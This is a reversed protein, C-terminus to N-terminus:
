RHGQRRPNAARRTRHKASRQRPAAGRQADEACRDVVAFPPSVLLTKKQLGFEEVVREVSRRSVPMGLQTLTQAVVEASALPDLFRQRIIQRVVEDTRRSRGKPGRKGCVLGTSGRELYARRLQFYRQKSFGFKAAAALPGSAGCEGEVLMLLKCAVDDDDRVPLAGGEGTVEHKKSDFRM